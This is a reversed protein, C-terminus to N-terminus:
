PTNMEGISSGYIPCGVMPPWRPAQMVNEVKWSNTWRSSVDLINKLAKCMAKQDGQHSMVGRPCMEHDKLNISSENQNVIDNPVQAM